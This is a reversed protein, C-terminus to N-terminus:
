LDTVTKAVDTKAIITAPIAGNDCVLIGQVRKCSTVKISSIEIKEDRVDRSIDATTVGIFASVLSIVAWVM